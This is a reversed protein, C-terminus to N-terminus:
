KKILVVKSNDYSSVEKRFNRYDDYKEKPYEGERILLIRKYLLSKGENTEEVTTIYSGFENEINKDNPMAEVAYGHPLNIVFQDDDLFGRQIELPLERNRYKNPTFNNKNFANIEFLIRDGSKSAYNSAAVTVDESFIVDSRDNQLQYSKIELNNINNWYNKYHKEVDEKPRDELYFRQDYQIGYTAIHVNGAIGGDENLSYVAKTKQLNDQNSYKTTTALEGGEPKIILVRRDDTFDGIFGFPHVQSTCDIWYYKDNYPIALIVHNGQALDSFDDQFDVKYSGAEVHTYYATVGVAELLAKTYNSLGKCDGYKVRDVELASMPQLGGIGVQVSIYRTNKQVYDYVLKAKELDDSVGTVLSRINDKATDTLKNQGKLLNNNMWLGVDKWNNFTGEYGGYTFNVSRTWIKPVIKDFSPSLAEEKIAKIDSAEYVISNPTETKIVTVGELNCEKVHPKLDPSAYVISYRSKETSVNYGNLFYWSPILGTNDATLEYSFEITYPYQVPTYDLYLVRSDSYLTGGEVASVDKFDKQKIKDIEKGLLNYIVAQVNKIKRDNDYWVSARVHSNGLKNLVTVRRKMSVNMEKKSALTVDMEDLRVIANSNSTLDENLLLSQHNLQATLFNTATILLCFLIRRM